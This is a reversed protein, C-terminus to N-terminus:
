QSLSNREAELQNLREEIRSGAPVDGWRRVELPGIRAREFTIAPEVTVAGQGFAELQFEGGSRVERQPRHYVLQYVDEIAIFGGELLEIRGLLITDDTKEVFGWKAKVPRFLYWLAAATAIVLIVLTTIVWFFRRNSITGAEMYNLIGFFDSGRGSKDIWGM